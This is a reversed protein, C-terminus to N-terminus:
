KVQPLKSPIIPYELTATAVHVAPLSALKASLTSYEEPLINALTKSNVAAIVLDAEITDKETHVQSLAILHFKLIIVYGILNSLM